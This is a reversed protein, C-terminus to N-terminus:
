GPKRYMKENENILSYKGSDKCFDITEKNGIALYGNLSLNDTFIELLKEQFLSSFYIFYNRCIIMNVSRSRSMNKHDHTEFVVNRYLDEKFRFGKDQKILYKSMDASEDEQFRKYNNESIELKNNSYLKDRAAEVALSSIDSATITCKDYIGAEKLCIATSLVEEASSCGPIWIKIKMHNRALVPCIEDRLYRWFAPDRFFETGEVTLQQKFHQFFDKQTALKDILAELDKLSNHDMIQAVRRKLSTSAYISLDFDYHSKVTEILKRLGSIGIEIEENALRNM